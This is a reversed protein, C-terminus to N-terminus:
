STQIRDFQGLYDPTPIETALLPDRIPDGSRMAMPLVGAWAPRAMDTAHDIPPGERVKASAESVALELVTTQALETRNPGRVDKWRGDLLHDSIIKLAQIKRAPELIPRAIGFAVVSRYNMSHNFASRALVIGDVLTVTACAPAGDQLHLMLRSAAAGHLLLTRDSRGYIMPIVFPQDTVSFGVNALFGADLIRAIASWDQSGRESIQNLQALSSQDM